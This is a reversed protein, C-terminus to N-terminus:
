KLIVEVVECFFLPFLFYHCGEGVDLVAVLLRRAVDAVEIGRYGLVHENLEEGLYAADARDVHGLVLEGAEVPPVAEDFEQVHGVGLVAYLYHGHDLQEATRHADGLAREVLLGSGTGEVDPGVEEDAVEVGGVDVLLEQVVGERCEPRYYAGGLNRPVVHRPLATAEAEHREVGELRRVERDLAHM